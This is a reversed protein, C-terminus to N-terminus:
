GAQVHSFPVVHLDRDMGIGDIFGPKHFIRDLGEGTSRDVGEVRLSGAAAMSRVNDLDAALGIHQRGGRIGGHGEGDVGHIFVKVHQHDAVMQVRSDGFIDGERLGTDPALRDRRLIDQM